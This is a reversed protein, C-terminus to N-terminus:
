GIAEGAPVLTQDYGRQLTGQYATIKKPDSLARAAGSPIGRHWGVRRLRDSMEHVV